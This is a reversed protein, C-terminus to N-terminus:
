KRKKRSKQYKLMRKREEKVCSVSYFINTFIVLALSIGTGSFLFVREKHFDKTTDTISLLETKNDDLAKITDHFFDDSYVANYTSGEVLQYRITEDNHNIVFRRGDTTYIDLVGGGRTKRYETSQLVFSTTHWVSSPEYIVLLFTFLCIIALLCFNALGCIASINKYGRRIVKIDYKIQNIDMTNTKGKM